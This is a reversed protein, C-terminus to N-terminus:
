TFFNEIVFMVNAPREALRRMYWPFWYDGYSILVRVRCGERVLRLQDNRRIGYLMQIEFANLPVNKERAADLIRRILLQDHTGFGVRIQKQKIQTLLTQALKFYNEDNESKAAFAITAPEAYAGKVLRIGPWAPLLKELDEATRYLYSQLCVGTNPFEERVHYYLDLTASTYKSGEMDIWVHNGKESASVILAKLNEYCLNLDQDLGLETLKVSIEANLGRAQIQDLLQLYHDKVQHTEETTTVNEGLHTLVSSLQFRQLDAAANLADEITEGPMFRMVSKQVFRYRPLRERLTQNRSTWLFFTRGIGM